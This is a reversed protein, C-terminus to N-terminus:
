KDFGRCTRVDNADARFAVETAAEGIRKLDKDLLIIRVTHDNMRRKGRNFHPELCSFSFEHKKTFKIQERQDTCVGRFDGPAPPLEGLRTCLRVRLISDPSPIANDLFVGFQNGNSLDFDKSEWRVTVPLHVNDESKPFKMELRRDPRFSMPADVRTISGWNIRVAQCAPLLFAFVVAIAILRRRSGM